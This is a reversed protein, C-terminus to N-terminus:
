AASLETLGPQVLEQYDPETCDPLFKSPVVTCLQVM